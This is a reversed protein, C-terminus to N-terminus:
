KVDRRKKFRYAETGEHIKGDESFHHHSATGIRSCRTLRDTTVILGPLIGLDKVAQGVFQYCEPQFYCEGTIQRNVSVAARELFSLSDLAAEVYLSDEFSVERLLGIDSTQAMAYSCLLVSVLLTLTKKM